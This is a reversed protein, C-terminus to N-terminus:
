HLIVQLTGRGDSKTMSINTYCLFAKYDRFNDTQMQKFHGLQPKLVCKETLVYIGIPSSIFLKM